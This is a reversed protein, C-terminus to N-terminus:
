SMEALQEAAKQGRSEGAMRMNRNPLGSQVKGNGLLFLFQSFVSVWDGLGEYVPFTPLFEAHAHQFLLNLQM